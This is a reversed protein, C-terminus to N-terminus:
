KISEANSDVIRFYNSILPLQQVQYSSNYNSDYKFKIGYNFAIGLNILLRVYNYVPLKIGFASDISGYTISDYLRFDKYKEETEERTLNEVNIEFKDSSKYLLCYGYPEKMSYTIKFTGKIRKSNDNQFMNKYTEDYYNNLNSFLQNFNDYLDYLTYGHACTKLNGDKHEERYANWKKPNLLRKITKVNRRKLENLTAEFLDINIDSSVLGVNECNTNPNKISNLLLLYEDKNPQLLPNFILFRNGYRGYINMLAKSLNSNPMEKVLRYCFTKLGLYYNNINSLNEQNNKYYDENTSQLEKIDRSLRDLFDFVIESLIDDPLFELTIDSINFFINLVHEIWDNVMKTISKSRLSTVISVQMYNEYIDFNRILTGNKGKLICYIGMVKTGDNYEDYAIGFKWVRPFLLRKVSKLEGDFLENLRDVESQIKETYKADKYTLVFPNSGNDIILGLRKFERIMYDIFKEQIFLDNEDFYITKDKQTGINLRKAYEKSIHKWYIKENEEDVLLLVVLNFTTNYLVSNFVKTDCSYKYPNKDNYDKPLTKIQVEVSIREMSNNDLIMIKGDLNPLKDAENTRVKIKMGKEMQNRIITISKSEKFDNESDKGLNIKELSELM